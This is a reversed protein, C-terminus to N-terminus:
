YKIDFETQLLDYIIDQNQLIRQLSIFGRKGFNISKDKRLQRVLFQAHLAIFALRLIKFLFDLKSSPQSSQIKFIHKLTKFFQEIYTRDFWHRRLTKAHINKDVTYVFTVKKSSQYRFFLMTVERNQSELNVRIRLTFPENKANQINKDQYEKEKPLYIKEIFDSIKYTVNNYIINCIKKPVSIYILGQTQCDESLGLNSYGSDCSFHLPPIAINKCRAKARFNGWKKVLERAKVIHIAEAVTTKETKTTKKPAKKRKKKSKEITQDIKPKNKETKATIQTDTKPVFDFYLPYFIADIVIGMTLIKVGYVTKGVQGSFFRAYCNEFDALLKEDKLWLKFVSDDLVVTTRERSWCSPHKKCLDALKSLAKDEFIACFLSQIDKISLKNCLKQYEIQTSNSLGM